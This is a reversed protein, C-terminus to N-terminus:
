NVGAVVDVGLYKLNDVFALQKGYMMLVPCPIKKGFLMAKSKAPNYTLCWQKGYQVCTDLLTQLSSRCPALLCIDDAYVLAAVFLDIIHCGVKLKRLISILDDIYIAFLHPSM